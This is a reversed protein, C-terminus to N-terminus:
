LTARLFELPSVSQFLKNVAQVEDNSVPKGEKDIIQRQYGQQDKTIRLTRFLGEDSTYTTVDYANRQQIHADLEAAAGADITFHGPQTWGRIVSLRIDDLGLASSAHSEWCYRASQLVSDFAQKPTVDTVRMAYWKLVADRGAPSLGDSSSLVNTYGFTIRDLKLAAVVMKEDEQPVVLEEFGGPREQIHKLCFEELTNREEATVSLGYDVMGAYAIMARTYRKEQMMCNFFARLSFENLAGNTFKFAMWFLEDTKRVLGRKSVVDLLFNWSNVDLQVGSTMLTQFLAQIEHYDGMKYSLLLFKHWTETSPLVGISRYRHFMMKAEEVEGNAYASLVREECEKALEPQERLEYQTWPMFTTRYLAIFRKQSKTYLNEVGAVKRM